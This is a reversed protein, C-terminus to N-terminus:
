CAGLSDGHRLHAAQAQAGVTITKAKHCLTVKDQGGSGGGGNKATEPKM